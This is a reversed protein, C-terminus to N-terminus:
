HAAKPGSHRGWLVGRKYASLPYLSVRINVVTEVQEKMLLLCFTVIGGYHRIAADGAEIPVDRFLVM